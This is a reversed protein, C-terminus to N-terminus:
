SSANNNNNGDDGNGNANTSPEGLTVDFFVVPNGREIAAM